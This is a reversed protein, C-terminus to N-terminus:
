FIIAGVVGFKGAGLLPQVRFRGAQVEVRPNKDLTWLLATTIALAATGGLVGYFAASQKNFTCARNYGEGCKSHGVAYNPDNVIQSRTKLMLGLTVGSAVTGAITLSLLTWAAVRMKSMRTVVPRVTLPLLTVALSSTQGERVVVVGRWDRRTPATVRLAYKGPKLSLSMLPTAGLLTKGSYIRAGDVNSTLKLYGVSLRRRLRYKLTLTPGQNFRLTENLVAHGPKRLKIRREGFGVWVVLPTTGEQLQGDVTVTAGEPVSIINVERKTLSYRQRLLAVQSFIAGKKSPDREQQLYRRYYRLAREDDFLLDYCRGINKLYKPQPDLLYLRKSVDIAKRYAKKKFHAVM